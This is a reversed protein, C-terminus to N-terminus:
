TTLPVHERSCTLQFPPPAACPPAASSPCSAHPQCSDRLRLACDCPRPNVAHDQHVLGTVAGVKSGRDGWAECFMVSPPVPLSVPSRWGLIPFLTSMPALAM